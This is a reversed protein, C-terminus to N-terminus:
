SLKRYGSASAILMGIGALLTLYVGLASLGTVHFLAIITILIGGGIGLMMARKEADSYWAYGLVVIGAILSIAGDGEFGFVTAGLVSYWPLFAGVIAGVATLLVAKYETEIEITSGTSSTGKTVGGESATSDAEM